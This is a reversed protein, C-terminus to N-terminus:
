CPHRNKEYKLKIKAESDLRQILEGVTERPSGDLIHQRRRTVAPRLGMIEMRSSPPEIGLDTMPVAQIEKKRAKIIDPLTPYRPANLSKAAGIVCPRVMRVVQCGGAERGCTATITDDDLRLAEVNTAVPMDLVAAVRFPTQFGESDIATKGALILDPDGDRLIAAALARATVISDPWEETIVHIGRDAGMALASRLTNAAAAKGVSVVIVEGPGTESKLKVAAEVANEDYPNLLFTINEDIERPEVIRITAASDPVHKVCVFLKM